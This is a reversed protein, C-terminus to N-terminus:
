SLASGLFLSASAVLTLVWRLRLYPIPLLGRRAALTEALALLLLGVALLSLGLALPALLALWALLSPIVGGVLRQRAARGPQALALGWHVAGLFSLIVAGYAALALGAWALGLWMGAVGGLFPLLGALGLPWAAQPLEPTPPTNMAQCM